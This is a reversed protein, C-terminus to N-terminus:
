DEAELSCDYTAVEADALWVWHKGLTMPEIFTNPDTFVMAYDLRDGQESLTFREEVIATPSTPIGQGDFHGWGMNTTTVVLTFDNEWRGVSYGLLSDPQGEPSAEPSMHITRVTDYEEIRWIIDEGAQTFEAPYPSEMILPMGKLACDKLPNDREWDFADVYDLADSTLNARGAPTKSLDRQFVRQSNGPTTWVRFIGLEPASADGIGLRLNDPVAIAPASWRAPTSVGLIVEDGSATLINRIYLSHEVRRALDGAVRITDGVEIFSPDIKWRRMNSVSDMAMDWLQEDGNEDVVRMSVQPHPNRWLVDVVEGEVEVIEEPDYNGAISHHAVGVVPAALLSLYFAIRISTM